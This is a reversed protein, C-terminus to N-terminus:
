VSQHTCVQMDNPVYGADVAARSAGVAGGLDDALQELMAFNEKSKLARGGACANGACGTMGTQMCLKCVHVRHCSVRLAWCGHEVSCHLQQHLQHASRMLFDRVVIQGMQLHDNLIHCAPRQLLPDTMSPELFPHSLTQGREVSILAQCHATSTHGHMHM